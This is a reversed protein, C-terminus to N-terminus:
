GNIRLLAHGMHAALGRGHAIDHSTWRRHTRHSLELIGVHEGAIVIPIMLLSAYGWHELLRREAPDAVPDDLHIEVTKGTQLVAESAPFDILPYSSSDIAAGSATIERLRQDHGIVSVGIVDVALEAAARAVAAHLEAMGTANALASTVAHMGHANAAAGGAAPRRQLLGRRTQQCSAVVLPSVAVVNTAPRGIAYGQAYDVDFDALAAVDDLREVGEGIVAAGLRHSLTVLAELVAGQATSDRVGSVVSRDVKVFDPRMSALRLLGAYGTSVDDVAIAAGRLRLHTLQDRLAAPSSAGSETVEVIVGDLDAPWCEAIRPHHVVDPSLNVTLRVGAPLDPRRELALRLCAAELLYGFGAAHAQKIILDTPTGPAHGFRALAEQALVAGTALDVIPQLVIELRDLVGAVGDVPLAAYGTGAGTM